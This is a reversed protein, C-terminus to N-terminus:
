AFRTSRSYNCQMLARTAPSLEITLTPQADTPAPEWWTGNSNDIAYAADHGPQQSSFGSLANM